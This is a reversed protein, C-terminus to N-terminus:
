QAARDVDNRLYERATASASFAIEIFEAALRERRPGKDPDDSLPEGTTGSRNFEMEFLEGIIERARPDAAVTENLVAQRVRSLEEDEEPENYDRLIVVPSTEDIRTHLKMMIDYLKPTPVDTLDRRQLEETVRQLEACYQELKDKATLRYREQVAELEIAKLNELKEKYESEWQALTRRSTGIEKEIVRLSKGQARLELFKEKTELDKVQTGGATM